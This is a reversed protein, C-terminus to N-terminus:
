RGVALYYVIMYPRNVLDRREVVEVDEIFYEASTEVSTTIESVTPTPGVPPGGGGGPPGQAVFVFSVTTKRGKRLTVKRHLVQNKYKATIDYVGPSLEYQKGSMIKESVIKKNGRFITVEFTDKLERGRYFARIELLAKGEAPPQQSRFRLVFTTKKGEKVIIHSRIVSGRYKAYVSYRGPKLKIEEGSRMERKIIEPGSLEIYFTDRIIRGDCYAKVTLYGYKKPTVPVEEYPKPLKPVHIRFGKRGISEVYVTVPVWAGEASTEVLGLNDWIVDIAHNINAEISKKFTELNDRVSESWEAVSRNWEQIGNVLNSISGHFNSVIESIKNRFDTLLGNLDGIHANISEIIESVTKNIGEITYVTSSHQHLSMEYVGNLVHRNVTSAYQTIRAITDLISKKINDELSCWASHWVGLYAAWAAPSVWSWWPLQKCPRGKLYNYILWRYSLEVKIAPAIAIDTAIDSLLDVIDFIGNKFEHIYSIECSINRNWDKPLEKDASAPIIKVKLKRTKANTRVTITFIQGPEPKKPFIDQTIKAVVTSFWSHMDKYLKISMIEDKEPLLFAKNIALYVNLFHSYKGVPLEYPEIKPMKFEIESLKSIDIEPLGPVTVPPLEPLKPIDGVEPLTVKPKELVVRKRAIPIVMPEESFEVPKGQFKYPIYVVRGAQNGYITVTGYAIKIPAQFKFGELVERLERIVDLLDSINRDKM